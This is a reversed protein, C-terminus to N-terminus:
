RGNFDYAREKNGEPTIIEDIFFIRVYDDIDYGRVLTETKELVDYPSIWVSGQLKEYGLQYLMQRLIDRLIRKKEPIDFIIMIWKGDRRKRKGALRCRARLVKQAGRPTLLVGQEGQFHAIKIYGKKRLHYILNTFQKRERKRAYAKRFRYMEPYVAERMTRPAFFDYSKDFAQYWDFVKLLFEDTLPLKM